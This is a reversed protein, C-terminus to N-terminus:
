YMFIGEQMMLYLVLALAGSAGTVFLTFAITFQQRYSIKVQAPMGQQTKKVEMSAHSVDRGMNFTIDAM